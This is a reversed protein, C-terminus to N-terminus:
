RPTAQEPSHVLMCKTIHALPKMACNQSEENERNALGVSERIKM